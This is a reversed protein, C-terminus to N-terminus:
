LIPPRVRPRRWQRWCDIRSARPTAPPTCCRSSRGYWHMEHQTTLSSGAPPSRKSSSTSTAICPRRRSTPSPSAAAWHTSSLQYILVNVPLKRRQSQFHTAWSDRWRTSDPSARRPPSADSSSPEAGAPGSSVAVDDAGQPSPKAPGSLAFRVTLIGAVLTLSGVLAALKIRSWAPDDGPGAPAVADPHAALEHPSTPAAPLYPVRAAGSTM